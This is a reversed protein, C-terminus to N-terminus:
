ELKGGTMICRYKEMTQKRRDMDQKTRSCGMYQLTFDNKLITICVGKWNPCKRFMPVKTEEPFGSKIKVIEYVGPKTCLKSIKGTKELVIGEDEMTKIVNPNRGYGDEEWSKQLRNLHYTIRERQEEPLTSILFYAYEKWTFHDPKTINKWGMATTGGYIGTFNVGNVRGVMKGWTNPEIVRFMKLSEQGCIHFPSATRMKDLSLGSQYYLDYLRNYDYGGIANYKWIDETRWDYIPYMNVVGSSKVTSYRCGKFMNSRHISSITGQRSLSEDSRLGVIVATQGFEGAFWIDFLLRTDAGYEGAHFEFPCNDENIVYPNNPMQRVWIDMKSKEWPIWYSQYMSCSCQASIPLCMWYKRKLEPYAAFCREVYDYTMQYGAEYDMHYMALKETQGTKVAYDYCLNLCVGSDKGGSFSILVNDFNDFIFKLREQTADYVNKNLYLKQM